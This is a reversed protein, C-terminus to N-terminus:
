TPHSTPDIQTPVMLNPDLRTIFSFCRKLRMLPQIFPQHCWKSQRVEQACKHPHHILIKAWENVPKNHYVEIVNKDITSENIHMKLMPLLHEYNQALLFEKNGKAM